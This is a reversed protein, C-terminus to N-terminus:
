VNGTYKLIAKETNRLGSTVPQKNGTNTKPASTAKAPVYANKQTNVSLIAVFTCEIALLHGGADHTRTINYNNLSMQYRVDSPTVVMFMETSQKAREIRAIASEQNEYDGDMLLTLTIENPNQTKNFAALKGNEIPITPTQASTTISVQEISTYACIRRYRTDLVHWENRTHEREM